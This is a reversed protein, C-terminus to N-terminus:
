DKEVIKWIEQTLWNTSDIQMQRGIYGNCLSNYDMVVKLLIPIELMEFANKIEYEPNDDQLEKLITSENTRKIEFFTPIAIGNFDSVPEM